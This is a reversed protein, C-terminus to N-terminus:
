RLELVGRLLATGIADLAHRSSVGRQALESVAGAVDTAESCQALIALTHADVRTAFCLAEDPFTLELTVDASGLEQQSSLRTGAPLRLAAALLAADGGALVDRARVFREVRAGTVDTVLATPVDLGSTWVPGGGAHQLVTIATQIGTIGQAHLHERMREASQERASDLWAFHQSCYDDLNPAPCRLVLVSVEDPGVTARIRQELALEGAIPWQAFVVARGGPALRAPMGALMRLVLDDGRAGGHLYTTATVGDVLPVFPPQAVILDFPETGAADFMDGTRCHVSEIANLAANHRALEIARPNIDTAVVADALSALSLAISGGGCGVDLVRGVRAIPRAARCLTATSQGPGMVADGGATPRDGFVFTGDVVGLRLPSVVGADEDVLLGCGILRELWYGGLAAAAEERAVPDGFAFMRLLAALPDDSRRLHWIRLPRLGAAVTSAGLQGLANAAPGGIGRARLEEGLERWEPATLTDLGAIDPLSTV